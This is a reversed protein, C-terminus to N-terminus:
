GGRRRRSLAWAGLAAVGGSGWLVAVVPAGLLGVLLASGIVLALSIALSAGSERRSEELPPRAMRWALLLGLGCTAPIVGRIAAQVVPLERIAAYGATLAITITASPLLLGLLAAAAGAAGAVRWGILITVAIINIGPAIQCIGWYRTFDAASLWGMREISERRIMSLTATGGGFSQLGISFWIRFLQTPTSM